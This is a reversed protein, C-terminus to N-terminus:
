RRVNNRLKRVTTGAKVVYVGKSLAVSHTGAPLQAKYVTVGIINVIQVSTAEPLLIHAQGNASWIQPAPLQPDDVGTGLRNVKSEILIIAEKISSGDNLDFDVDTIEIDYNGDPVDDAVSFGISLIKALLQTEEARLGNPKIELQWVNAGKFSIELNSSNSLPEALKTSTELLHYGEPLRFVFKGKIIVEAPVRFSIDISGLRDKIELMEGTDIELPSAKWSQTITGSFADGSINGPLQTTFTCSREGEMGRVERWTIYGNKYEAGTIDSVKSGNYMVPNEIALINGVRQAEPLTITQRNAVLNGLNTNKRIDLGIL